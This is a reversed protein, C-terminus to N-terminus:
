RRKRNSRCRGKCRAKSSPWIDELVKSYLAAQEATLNTFQDITNREPLDAIVSKDSKLRRLM